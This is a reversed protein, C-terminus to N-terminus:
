GAPVLSLTKPEKAKELGAQVNPMEKEMCSQVPHDQSYTFTLIRNVQLVM